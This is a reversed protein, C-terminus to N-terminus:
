GGARENLCQWAAHEPPEPFARLLGADSRVVFRRECEPHGEDDEIVRAVLRPMAPDSMWASEALPGRWPGLWERGALARWLGRPLERADTQWRGRQHTPSLEIPGPTAADPHFVYGRSLAHNLVILSDASCTAGGAEACWRALAARGAATDGLATQRTSMKAFKDAMRDFSRPGICGAIGLEPRLNLYFKVTVELTEVVGDARLLVVDFEGVTRGAERVVLGGTSARVEPRAAQWFRVFREFVHGLPLPTAPAGLAAHLPAPARDLALLSDRMRSLERASWADDRLRGQWRPDTADFLSPAGITWALRRVEPDHLEALLADLAASGNVQATAADNM